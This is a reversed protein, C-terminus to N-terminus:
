KVDPTPDPLEVALNFKAQNTGSQEVKKIESVVPIMLGTM